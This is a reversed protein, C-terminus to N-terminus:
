AGLHGRLIRGPAQNSYENINIGDLLYTNQQPRGGAISLQDGLGRGLRDTSSVPAIAHITSVGPQLIALDTWSRGNLPLEVITNSSIVGSITPSALQVDPSQGTVEVKETVTGVKMAVNLVQQAGVTLIVGSEIVTQFGPASVTVQYNGPLLNPANYIGQVNTAVNTTVGTAVNTISVTDKPIAAGSEDTVTGSLSGGVMQAYGPISALFCLTLVIRAIWGVFVNDFKTRAKMIKTM